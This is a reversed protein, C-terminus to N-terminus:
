LINVKFIGIREDHLEKNEVIKILVANIDQDEFFYKLDEIWDNVGCSETFIGKFRVKIINGKISILTAKSEPERFKNYQRITKRTLQEARFPLAEGMGSGERCPKM